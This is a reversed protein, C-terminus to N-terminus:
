QVAAAQELGSAQAYRTHAAAIQAHHYGFGSLVIGYARRLLIRISGSRQQHCTTAGAVYPVLALLSSHSSGSGLLEFCECTRSGAYDISDEDLHFNCQILEVFVFNAGQESPKDAM